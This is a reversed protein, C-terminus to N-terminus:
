IFVLYSVDSPKSLHVEVVQLKENDITKETTEQIYIKKM